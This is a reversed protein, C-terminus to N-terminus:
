GSLLSDRGFFQYNSLDLNLDALNIADWQQQSERTLMENYKRQLPAAIISSQSHLPLPFFYLAYKM